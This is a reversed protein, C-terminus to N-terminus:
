DAASYFYKFDVLIDWEDPINEKKNMNVSNCVLNPWSSQIDSLFKAFKTIDVGTLRVSATQTKSAKSDILSGTSLKCKEPTIGCASAVQNVVRDYAFEITEANPDGKEIREPELALIELMKTEAEKYVSVNEDLETQASPLYVALILAPWIAILVPILVYIYVSYKQIEKM